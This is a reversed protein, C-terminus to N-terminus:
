GVEKAQATIGSARDLREIEALILAGAKILNRRTSGGKVWHRVDDLFRSAHNPRDGSTVWLAPDAGRNRLAYIAAAVAIEGKDHEDDHEPTWGEASIQRHREALVDRAAGTMPVAQPRLALIARAVKLVAERDQPRLHQGMACEYSREIQEDSVAAPQAQSDNWCEPDACRPGGHNGDCKAAPQAGFHLERATACSAVSTCTHGPHCTCNTM